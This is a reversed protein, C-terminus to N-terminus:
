FISFGYDRYLKYFTGVKIRQFDKQKELLNSIINKGENRLGSGRMYKIYRYQYALWLLPVIFKPYFISKIAYQSAFDNILYNRNKKNNVWKNIKPKHIVLLNPCFVNEYGKRNVQMALAIEEYGYKNPFYVPLDFYELRLFHSGGCPMYCKYIGDHLELKTCNVRNAKWATDYIQTTLTAINLNDEFINIADLFFNKNNCDIVADDDLMYVFEGSVYTLAYNRGLGVGLNEESRIYKLEISLSTKLSQILDFTNDTSANDLVIIETGIPLDCNLCSNIAECLQESRNMTVIVISLKKEM